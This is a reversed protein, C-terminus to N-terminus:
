DCGILQNEYVSRGHGKAYVEYCISFKWKPPEWSFATDQVALTIRRVEGSMQGDDWRFTVNDRLMRKPAPLGIRNEELWKAYELKGETMPCEMVTWQNQDWVLLIYALKM